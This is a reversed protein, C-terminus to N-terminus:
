ITPRCTVNIRSKTSNHPGHGPWKLWVITLELNGALIAKQSFNGVYFLQLGPIWGALQCFWLMDSPLNGTYYVSWHANRFDIVAARANGRHRRSPFGGRIAKYPSKFGAAWFTWREASIWLPNRSTEVKLLKYNAHARKVRVHVKLHIDGAMIWNKHFERNARKDGRSGSANNKSEQRHRRATGVRSDDAPVHKLYEENILFPVSVNRNIFM